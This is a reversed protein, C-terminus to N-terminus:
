PARELTIATVMRASRAPRRDGQVVLRFPGESPPLAAGDQGHFGTVTLTQAVVPGAILALGIASGRILM